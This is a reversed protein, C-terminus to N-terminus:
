SDLNRSIECPFGYGALNIGNEDLLVVGSLCQQGGDDLGPGAWLGQVPCGGSEGGGGRGPGNGHSWPWIGVREGLDCPSGAGAWLGNEAAAGHGPGLGLNGERGVWAKVWLLGGM